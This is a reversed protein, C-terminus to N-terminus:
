VVGAAVLQARELRMQRRRKHAKEWGASFSDGDESGALNGVKTRSPAASAGKLAARKRAVKRAEESGDGRSARFQSMIHAVDSPDPDPADEFAQVYKPQQGIWERFAPSNYEKVWGSADADGLARGVAAGLEQSRRYQQVDAAGQEARQVIQEVDRASARSQRQVVASIYGKIGEAIDADLEALRALAEQEVKESQASVAEEAQRERQRYRDLDQAMRGMRTKLERIEADRSDPEVTKDTDTDLGEQSEASSPPEATEEVDGSEESEEAEQMKQVMGKALALRKAKKEEFAKDWAADFESQEETSM